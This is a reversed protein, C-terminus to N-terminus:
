SIAESNLLQTLLFIEQWYYILTQSLMIGRWPAFGIKKLLFFYLNSTRFVRWGGRGRGEKTRYCWSFVSWFLESYPCKKRLSVHYESRIELHNVKWHFSVSHPFNGFVSNNRTRIQVSEVWHWNNPKKEFIVIM